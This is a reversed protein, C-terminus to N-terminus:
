GLKGAIRSQEPKSTQPSKRVVAMVTRVLCEPGELSEMAADALGVDISREGVPYIVVVPISPNLRRFERLLEIRVEEALDGLLVADLDLSVFNTLADRARFSSVIECGVSELIRNRSEFVAADSGISLIRPHPCGM